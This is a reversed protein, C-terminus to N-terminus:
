MKFDMGIQIKQGGFDRFHAVGNYYLEMTLGTTFIRGWEMLGNSSLVRGGRAIETLLSQDGNNGMESTFYHSHTRICLPLTKKKYLM